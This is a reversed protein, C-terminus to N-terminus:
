GANGSVIQNLRLNAVQEENILAVWWQIPEAKGYQAKAVNAIGFEAVMNQQLLQTGALSAGDTPFM